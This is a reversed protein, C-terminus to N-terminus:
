EGSTSAATKRAVYGSSNTRTCTAKSALCAFVPRGRVCSLGIM